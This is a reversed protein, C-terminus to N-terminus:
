RIVMIKTAVGESGSSTAAFVLYIGAKVLSGHRDTGNWTYQGGLSKGEMIMNGAMDTIKVNSNQMLGTIVVQQDRAPNFPNPFAFVNSYDSKGEIAEGMYSCLGKDTGIFVEGTENNIAISNIKNSLLYSNDTNLNEVKITTADPQDVIYIGSNETGMWKRNGGDVAIANIQQGELLYYGEGYQDTSIVRYCVGNEVQQASSFSIPGNDTGVWITGNLDEAISFFGSAKTDTGRQDKFSKSYYAKGGGTETDDIVLIGVNKERWINIWKQNNRSILIKDVESDNLPAYYYNNWKGQADMISLGNLVGSNVMYLNNSRDYVMGGVRVISPKSALLSSNDTSYLKVFENDQFEYVGEGWSSVFYHNPDRPDVVLSMLDDCRLGTKKAVAKEDLNFWQNNEMIMLTGPTNNRDSGRGGGVVFLKNATYTMYFNFNRKPSNVKLESVEVKYETSNDERTINILGGEGAAIWYSTKSNYSSIASGAIKIIYLSNLKPIFTIQDERKIVLQNNLITIQDFQTGEQILNFNKNEDEYYVGKKQQVIVLRNEFFILYSLNRENGGIGTATYNTLPYYIWNERDLLNSSTLARKIGEDTAAYFYDGNQAVSKTNVGLRYTEKIEKRKIDVVVIGFATSIYAYDGILELNNITKDQIYVDDKIFSLNYVNDPGMFIDINANSYVLILAGAGPSYAMCQIGVDSLGDKFSYTRVEQDEPNYSLLAGDYVGYVLTSTKAVITANQYALYTKWTGIQAQSEVCFLILLLFLLAKNFLNIKM